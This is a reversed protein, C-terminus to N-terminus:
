NLQTLLPPEVTDARSLATTAAPMTPLQDHNSPSVIPSFNFNATNSSIFTSDVVKGHLKKSVYINSDRIRIQTRSIGSQILNWREKLLISEIKRQEKSM